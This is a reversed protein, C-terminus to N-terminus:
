STRKGCTPMGLAAGALGDEDRVVVPPRHGGAADADQHEASGKFRQHHLTEQDAVQGGHRVEVRGGVGSGRERGEGAIGVAVVEEEDDAAVIARGGDGDRAIDAGPEVGAPRRRRPGEDDPEGLPQPRAADAVGAVDTGKGAEQLQRQRVM